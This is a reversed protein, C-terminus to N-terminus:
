NFYNQWCRSKPRYGQPTTLNISLVSSVLMVRDNIQLPPKTELPGKHTFKLTILRKGCAKNFASSPTCPSPSPTCPSPSPLAASNFGTRLLSDNGLEEEELEQHVMAKGKRRRLEKANEAERSSGHFFTKHFAPRQDKGITRNTVMFCRHNASAEGAHATVTKLKYIQSANDVLHMPQSVSTLGRQKRPMKQSAPRLNPSASRTSLNRRSLTKNLELKHTDSDPEQPQPSLADPHPHPHPHPSDFGPFASQYQRIFEQYNRKTATNRIQADRTLKDEYRPYITDKADEALQQEERTVKIRAYPEGEV